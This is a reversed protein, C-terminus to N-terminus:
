KKSDHQVIFASGYFSDLYKKSYGTTVKHYKDHTKLDGAGCM